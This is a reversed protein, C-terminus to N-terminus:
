RRRRRPRRWRRPLRGRGGGRGGERGLVPFRPGHGSRQRMGAVRRRSQLGPLVGLGERSGEPVGQLPPGHPGGRRRRRRRGLGGGGSRGSRAPAAGEPGAGDRVAPHRDGARQRHGPRDRRGVREAGGPAVSARQHATRPTIPPSPYPPIHTRTTQAHPSPNPNPNTHFPHTLSHPPLPPPITWPSLHIPVRFKKVSCLSVATKRLGYLELRVQGNVVGPCALVMVADDDSGSGGGASGTSGGAAAAAATGELSVSCLGAENRGTGVCDM